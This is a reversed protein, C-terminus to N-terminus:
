ALSKSTHWSEGFRYLTLRPVFTLDNAKFPQLRIMSINEGSTLLSTLLALRPRPTSGLEWEGGGVLGGDGIGATPSKKGTRTGM